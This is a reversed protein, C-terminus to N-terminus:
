LRPVRQVREPKRRFKDFSPRATAIRQEALKCYGPDKEIGIFNRDLALAAVGTTGSGMCCDLVTDGPNSYTRIFYSMLALPKQTPHVAKDIQGARGFSLAQRPHNTYETEVHNNEIGHGGYARGVSGRSNRKRGAWLIGQPNYTPLRRYFVAIDEVNKLPMRNANMFGTPNNKIWAWCYRFEAANSMVLASTFPQGCTLVFATSDTAVRHLRKWLKPLDIVSDWECETTGYPLDTLVMDVSGPAFGELEELCDGNRLVSWAM